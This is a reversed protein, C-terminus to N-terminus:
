LNKNLWARLEELERVCLYISESSGYGKGYERRLEVLGSNHPDVLISQHRKKGIRFLKPRKLSKTVAIDADIMANVIVDIETLKM